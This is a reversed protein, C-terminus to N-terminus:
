DVASDFSGALLYPRAIAVAELRSHCGLKKLIHQIHNRVTATSLSLAAAVTATDSGRAILALVRLEQRTLVDIEREVTAGVLFRSAEEVVSNAFDMAAQTNRADRVLHLIQGDGLGNPGNILVCSVEVPLREVSGNRGAGRAPLLMDFAGPPAGDRVTAWVGCQAECLPAGDMKRGRIVQYCHQGLVDRAKDVGLLECAADNIQVIRQHGDAVYAPITTGFTVGADAM